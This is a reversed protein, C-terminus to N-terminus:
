FIVEDGEKVIGELEPPLDWLSGDELLAEGSPYVELVKLEVGEEEKGVTIIRKNGKYELHWTGKEQHKYRSYDHKYRNYGDNYSSYDNYLSGCYSSYPYDSYYYDYIPKSTYLGKYQYWKGKKLMGTDTWLLVRSNNRNLVDYRLMIKFNRLGIRRAFMALFGTDSLTKKYKSPVKLGFIGNHFLLARSFGSIRNKSLVPFPHCLEPKTGGGTSIRLHLVLQYDPVNYKKLDNLLSKLSMFGKKFYLPYRDNDTRVAFGAGDPNIKWQRRIFSEPIVQGEPKAIIICM